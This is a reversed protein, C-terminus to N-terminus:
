VAIPSGCACNTALRYFWGRMGIDMINLFQTLAAALIAM